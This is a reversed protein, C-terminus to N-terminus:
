SCGESCLWRFSFADHKKRQMCHDNKQMNGWRTRGAARIPDKRLMQLSEQRITVRMIRCNRSTRRWAKAVRMEKCRKRVPPHVYSSAFWACAEKYWLRLHRLGVVIRVHLNMRYLRHDPDAVWIIRKHAFVGVSSIVTHFSFSHLPNIIHLNICFQIFHFSLPLTAQGPRGQIAWCAERIYLNEGLGVTEIGGGNM